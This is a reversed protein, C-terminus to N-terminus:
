GEPRTHRIRVRTPSAGRGLNEAHPDLEEIGVGEVTVLQGITVAYETVSDYSGVTQGPALETGVPLKVKIPEGGAGVEGRELVAIGSEDVVAFETDKEAVLVYKVDDSVMFKELLVRYSVCPRSTYPATLVPGIARITGTIRGRHHQPLDAIRVDRLKPPKNKNPTFAALVGVLVIPGGVIAIAVAILSM